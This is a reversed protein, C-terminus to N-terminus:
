RGVYRFFSLSALYFYDQSWWLYRALCLAQSIHAKSTASFLKSALRLTLYAVVHTKEFYSRVKRIKCTVWFKASIHTNHMKPSIHCPQSTLYWYCIQVNTVFYTKLMKLENNLLMFWTTQALITCNVSCIKWLFGKFHSLIRPVTHM